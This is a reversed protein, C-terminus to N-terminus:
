NSTLLITIFWDQCCKTNLGENSIGKKNNQGSASIHQKIKTEGPLSFTNPYKEALFERTMAPNM